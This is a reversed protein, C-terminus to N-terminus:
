AVVISMVKANDNKHQIVYNYIARRTAEQQLQISVITTYIVQTIRECFGCRLIHSTSAYIWDSSDQVTCPVEISGLHFGMNGLTM